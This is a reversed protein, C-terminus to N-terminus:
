KQIAKWASRAALGGNIISLSTALGSEYPMLSDLRAIPLMFISFPVALLYVATAIHFGFRGLNLLRKKM